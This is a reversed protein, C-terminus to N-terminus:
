PKEKSTVNWPQKDNEDYYEGIEQNMDMLTYTPKDDILLTMIWAKVKTVVEHSVWEFIEDNKRADQCSIACPEDDFFYVRVGVMTDTCIHSGAWYAKLRDQDDYYCLGFIELEAAVKDVDVWHENEKTKVIRSILDKLLM